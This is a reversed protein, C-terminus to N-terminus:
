CNHNKQNQGTKAILILNELEGEIFAKVLGKEEDSLDSDLVAELKCKYDDIDFLIISPSLPQCFGGEVYRYQDGCITCQKKGGHDHAEIVEYEHNCHSTVAKLLLSKIMLKEGIENSKKNLADIQAGLADRKERIDM